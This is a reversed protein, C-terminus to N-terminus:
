GYDEVGIGMGPSEEGGGQGEGGGDRIEEDEYVGVKGEVVGVSYSYYGRVGFAGLEEVGLGGSLGGGM